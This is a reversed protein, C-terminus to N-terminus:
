IHLRFLSNKRRARLNKETNKCITPNSCSIICFLKASNQNERLPFPQECFNSRNAGIPALLVPPVAATPSLHLTTLTLLTAALLVTLLTPAHSRLLTPIRSRIPNPKKM